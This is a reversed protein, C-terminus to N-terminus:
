TRSGVIKQDKLGAKKRTKREQTQAKRAFANQGERHLHLFFRLDQELRWIRDIASKIDSANDLRFPIRLIQERTKALEQLLWESDALWPQPLKEPGLQEIEPAEM